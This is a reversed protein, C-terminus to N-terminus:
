QQQGPGHQVPGTGACATILGGRGALAGVRRPAPPATRHPAGVQIYRHLFTTLVPHAPNGSFLHSCARVAALRHKPTPSAFFQLLLPFLVAAPEGYVDDRLDPRVAGEAAVIDRPDRTLDELIKEATLLM